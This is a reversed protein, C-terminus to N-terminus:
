DILCQVLPDKCESQLCTDSCKPDPSGACKPQCKQLQCTWIADLLSVAKPTAKGMCAFGCSENNQCSDICILTNSCTVTGPTPGAFCGAIDPLCSQTQPKSVCSLINAFKKQEAFSANAYCKASITLLKEKYQQSCTWTNACTDSGSAANSTCALFQATCYKGVCGEMCSKDTATACLSTCVATECQRLPEFLFQSYLSGDKAASNICDATPHIDGCSENQYLWLSLCSGIPGGFIDADNGYPLDPPYGQWDPVVLGDVVTVEGASSDSGTENPPADTVTTETGGADAIAADAVQADAQEADALTADGASTDGPLSDSPGAEAQVVTDEPPAVDIPPLTDTPPLGDIITASDEPPTIGGDAEGDGPQVGDEPPVIVGDPDGDIPDVSDLAGADAPGGSDPAVDKAPPLEPWGAFDAKGDFTYPATEVEVADASQGDASGQDPLSTDPLADSGPLGGDPLIIVVEAITGDAELDGATGDGVGDIPAADLGPSGTDATPAGDSATASDASNGSDAGSAPATEVGPAQWTEVWTPGGDPLNNPESGVPQGVPAGGVLAPGQGGGEAQWDTCAVAM